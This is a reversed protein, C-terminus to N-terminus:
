RCYLMNYCKALNIDLNKETKKSKPASKKMKELFFSGASRKKHTKGFFYALPAGALFCRKEQM